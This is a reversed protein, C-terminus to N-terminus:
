GVWAGVVNFALQNAAREQAKTLSLANNLYFSTSIVVDNVLTYVTYSDNLFKDDSDSSGGEYNNNIFISEVGVVSVSPVKGNTVNKSWSYTVGDDSTNSDSQNGTCRKAQRELTRFARIAATNSAFQSVSVAVSTESRRQKPLYSANFNMRAGKVEVMTEGLSCLYISENGTSANFFIGPKYTGLAKPIQKAELMHSAAYSYAKKDYAAVAPAAAVVGLALSTALVAKATVRM